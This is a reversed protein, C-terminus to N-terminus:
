RIDHGTLFISNARQKGSPRQPFRALWCVPYRKKPNHKSYQRSGHERVYLSVKM